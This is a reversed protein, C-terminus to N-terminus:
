LYEAWVWPSPQNRVPVLHQHELHGNNCINACSRACSCESSQEGLKLTDNRALDWVTLHMPEKQCDVLVFRNDTPSFTAKGEGLWAINAPKYLRTANIRNHVLYTM